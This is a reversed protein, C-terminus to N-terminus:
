SGHDPDHQWKELLKKDAQWQEEASCAGSIRLISFILVIGFLWALASLILLLIM